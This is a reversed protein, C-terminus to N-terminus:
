YNEFGKKRTLPNARQYDTRFEFYSDLYNNDKEDENILFLNKM